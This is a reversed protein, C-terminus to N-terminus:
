SLQQIFSAKKMKSSVQLKDNMVIRDRKIQEVQNHLDAMRAQVESDIRKVMEGELERLKRLLKRNNQQM